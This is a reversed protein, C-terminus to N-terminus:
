EPARALSLTLIQLYQRGASSLDQPLDKLLAEFALRADGIRLAGTRELLRVLEAFAMTQVIAAEALIQEPPREM